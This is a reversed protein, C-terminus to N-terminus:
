LCIVTPVGGVGIVVKLINCHKYTFVRQAPTPDRVGNADVARVEFVHTGQPYTITYPSSCPTFAGGDLRCEFTAPTKTSHFTFTSTPQNYINGQPGSDIVTDPPSEKVFSVSAPSPDVYGDPDIARVTVTHPGDSMAPGYPSTCAAYAGADLKCQFTAGPTDPSSFTVQPNYNDVPANAVTEPAPTEYSGSDCGDGDPRVVDRQDTAPCTAGGLDIAPSSPLPRYNLTRGGHLAITPDLKPDANTGFGCSTGPWEINGAQDVVNGTCAPLSPAAASTDSVISDTVNITETGTGGAVHFTFLHGGPAAVGTKRQAFLTSSVVNVVGNTAGSNSAVIGGIGNNAVNGAITDNEFTVTEGQVWATAGSNTASGGNLYFTSRRVTGPTLTTALAGATAAQNLYFSSHDILLSGGLTWVGGGSSAFNQQITVGDLELRALYSAIGAGVNAGALSGRLITLDHLTLAALPDITGAVFWIRFNPTGADASREITSGHGEVTLPHVVIPLGNGGAAPDISDHLTFTCPGGTVDITDAALTANAATIAARLAVVDGCAVSFTQPPATDVIFTASKSGVNGVLDTAYVTITHIGDTLPDTTFPSTCASRPGGDVSCDDTATPDDVTFEITATHRPPRRHRRAATIEVVPATKDVTFTTSAPHRTSTARPTRPAFSSRYAHRRHAGSHVAVFVDVYAGADIKCQFTAGPTDPSSFTITTDNTPDNSPGTSPPRPRPRKSSAPTARTAM